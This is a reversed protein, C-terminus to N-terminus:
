KELMAELRELRAQIASNAQRLDDIEKQQEQIAAISIVAFGDYSIGYFGEKEHVVEPFLKLTERAIFGLVISIPKDAKPRGAIVTIM